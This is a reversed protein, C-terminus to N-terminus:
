AFEGRVVHYISTVHVNFKEALEYVNSRVGKSRKRYNAQIYARDEDTLKGWTTEVGKTQRGKNVKDTMNDQYTGLFLHDPNYCHRVDCKHLVLGDLNFVDLGHAQAYSLRHKYVLKGNYKVQTYGTSMKAKSSLMCPTSDAEM